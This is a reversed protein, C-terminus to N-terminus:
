NKSRQQLGHEESFGNQEPGRIISEKLEQKQEKTLKPKQGEQKKRSISAIGKFLFDNKWNRITRESVDWIKGIVEASVNNSLLLLSTIKTIEKIDGVKKAEELKKELEKTIKKNFEINM